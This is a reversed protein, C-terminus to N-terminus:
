SAQLCLCVVVVRDTTTRGTCLYIPQKGETGNNYRHRPLGQGSTLGCIRCALYVPSAILHGQRSQCTGTQSVIAVPSGKHATLVPLNLRGFMLVPPHLHRIM